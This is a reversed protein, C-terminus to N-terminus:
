KKRSAQMGREERRPKYFIKIPTAFFDYTERIRNQLYRTYSSHFRDPDNVFLTFEPPNVGTQVGYYIKPHRIKQNRAQPPREIMCQQLTKNISSTAVEKKRSQAIDRIIELLKFTRIKEQASTFIIPVWKMYGFVHRLYAEYEHLQVDEKPVLDWKNVVLIISKHSDLAMQSITMDQKTVARSADLVLLIIDARQISELSRLVSYYELSEKVKSKRRLGATDIFTIRQKDFLIDKDISDRTTGAVDSVILEDSGLFVNMLSSKGVNPKGIVAVSCLPEAKLKKGYADSVTITPFTSVIADLFESVGRGNTASIYFISTGISEFVTQAKYEFDLNDVKNAFVLFPKKSKYLRTLIERDEQFFDTRGDVGFLIVDAREIALEVQEQMGIEISDYQDVTDIGATDVMLFKKGDHEVYEFISDRTTGAQESVIAKMSGVIRNFFTSKGINPRGIIAVVPIKM